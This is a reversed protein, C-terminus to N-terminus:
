LLLFGTDHHVPISVGPPISALLSRVIRNEPVGIANYIPILLSRWEEEQSWPLDLVKMLFDDCFNFIIKKIGWGDHSPRCLKVNGVQNDDDWQEPQMSQLKAKFASIDVIARTFAFYKEKCDIRECVPGSKDNLTVLGDPPVVIVDKILSM